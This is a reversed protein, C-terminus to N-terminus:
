CANGPATAQLLALAEERLGEKRGDLASQVLADVRADFDACLLPLANLRLIADRETAVLEESHSVLVEHLKEAPRLGTFEIEAPVGSLAIMKRALDVIKVPEGMELVFLDGGDSLAQAQLVLRAAEPITMFYRTVDPHTVRLPGGSRLMEEFLPVVSGRSGLVNGFRVAVAKLRGRSCASLMVREAVAKTTGMMSQPEVAKDTSILVFREVGNREAAWLVLRTGLVNAKVAEDPESEMLPVHKYAAAHLVVAPKEAAFLADLKRADRVDVLHMEAVGPAIRGLELYLEYLRSEDTEILLLRSPGLTLLQRCLESGISGAAGTVAVVRGAITSAVQDVDIPAPARGLLDEVEVRRLDTLGVSSKGIVLQPMIRTKVGAEAACNLVERIAEPTASPMAVLVEEAGFDAIAEPLQSTPGVVPVGRIVRGHLNADDDLFGVPHLALDPQNEIDRLLLSGANGAGVILVRTGVRAQAAEAYAYVRVSLRLAASGLLVFLWQIVLIGVPVLRNGPESLVIDLALLGALGLVSAGVLRILADVGVFRLVLRYVGFSWFLGVYVIVGAGIALPINREAWTPPMGEFRVYYAAVTAVIVIAADLLRLLIGRVRGTFAGRIMGPKEASV